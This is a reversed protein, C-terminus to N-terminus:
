QLLGPFFAALNHGFSRAMLQMLIPFEINQVMLMTGNSVKTWGGLGDPNAIEVAELLGFLVYESDENSLKAFGEFFPGAFKVVVDLQEETSLSTANKASPGIEKMAPLLTGLLPGLKRTVHFQRLANLKGLKFKRGGLEFTDM